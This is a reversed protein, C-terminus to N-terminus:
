LKFEVPICFLTKCPKGKMKGPTWKQMMGLVRLVEEDCEKSLPRVISLESISGDTGIVFSAMVLGQLKVKKAQQPYKLNETLWRVFKSMGGPYSPLEELLKLDTIVDEREIPKDEKNNSPVVVSDKGTGVVPQPTDTVSVEDVVEIEESVTSEKIIEKEPLEPVAEEAAIMETTETINEMSKAFDEASPSETGSPSCELVAVFVSINIVLAALFWIPKKRELDAKPSKKIEM